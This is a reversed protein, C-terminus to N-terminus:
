EDYQEEKFVFNLFDEYSDFMPASSLFKKLYRERDVGNLNFLSPYKHISENTRPIYLWSFANTMDQITPKRKFCQFYKKAFIISAGVEEKKRKEYFDDISCIVKAPNGAIISNDPFVGSVVSGAGIISNNGIKTGMLVISNIGIFVNNGIITERAEGVNCFVDHNCFVVRSYDHTLITVGATVVVNNGISLLHPRTVDINMTQPQFFACNDGVRVGRKKLLYSYENAKFHRSFFKLKFRLFHYKLDM